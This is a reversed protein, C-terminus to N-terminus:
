GRCKAVKLCDMALLLIELDAERGAHGYIEAGLQLPERSAHPRDPRTHLV